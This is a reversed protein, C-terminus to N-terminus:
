GSADSRSSPYRFSAPSRITESVRWPRSRTSASNGRKKRGSCTPIRYVYSFLSGCLDCLGGLLRRAPCPKRRARQARPPENQTIPSHAPHGYTLELDSAANLEVFGIDGADHVEAPEEAVHFLGLVRHPALGAQADMRGAALDAPRADRRREFE